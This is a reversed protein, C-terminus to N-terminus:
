GKKERYTEQMIAALLSALIMGVPVIALSSRYALASYIQVGNQLHGGWVYQLVIGVSPQLVMGGLMIFLNIMGMATATLRVETTDRGIAFCIVEVSAFLGFLFLLVSLLIHSMEPWILVLSICTASALSGVMLPYRRSCVFDSLWGSAPAGVLWGAFVMSNLAAADVKSVHGVTQLFSIGWMVAFVSLSMYLMCGIAGAYIINRNCLVRLFGQLIEKFSLAKHKEQKAEHVFLLFIPILIAGIMASILIVRRWGYHGVAWSMQVDGIMAGVMGLATTIGAFLAFRNRPLWMAALKLVGIFAFASGVGILLRGFAAWYLHQTIGFILSGIACFGIAVTLIKRPGFYDTIIGVVAQLPTYAYYYMASVIGLGAVSIHFYRMLEPVMVSPEIRLLFEYCYFIAALSCVFWGYAVVKASRKIGKSL